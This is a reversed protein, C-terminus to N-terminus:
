GKGGYQASIIIKKGDELLNFCCNIMLDGEVLGELVEVNLNSSKGLKVEKLIAKDNKALYVFNKNGDKVIASQPIVIVDSNSYTQLKIEVSTGPRLTRKPNPFTIEVPFAQTRPDIAISVDTVKGEFSNGQWTCVAKLGKKIQSIENDSASVNAVMKDLKAVTFLATEKEPIDGVNYSMSVIYGSIPATVSLMQKLAEVNRNAVKYQMETQEFITQSMNGIDLLKKARKYTQEITELQIEAQQLQMSPTNKPYEVIVDGKEVWDGIKANIKLIQDGIKAGETTTKWGRIKAFYSLGSNLEGKSVEWVEVPVGEAAQIQEISRAPVKEDRICSNLVLISMLPILLLKSSKLLRM